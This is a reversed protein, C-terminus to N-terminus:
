AKQSKVGHLRNFDFASHKVSQNRALNIRLGQFHLSFTGRLRRDIKLPSSPTIDWFISSKTVGATIVETGVRVTLMESSAPHYFVRTSRSSFRSWINQEFWLTFYSQGLTKCYLCTISPISDFSQNTMDSNTIHTSYWQIIPWVATYNLLLGSINRDFPYGGDEPDLLLAHLLCGASCTTVNWFTTVATLDEFWDSGLM